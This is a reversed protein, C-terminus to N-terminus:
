HHNRSFRADSLMKEFQMAASKPSHHQEVWVRGNRGLDRCLDENNKLLMISEALKIPDEPSTCLGAEARQILKNTESEEEVSALIPRGSAMISYTKSPLSATGIGQRLIVLSLDASALVEPLTERPQFPIFKVNELKMKKSQEQLSDRGAGDGVFVFTIDNQKALIEAATLVHELGQSLGINGAYLVIFKDNLQHSQSFHNDKSMPYILDTDVWDYVLNMKTDPIGLNRIGTRFSDSLIRVVDAHNLCYRELGGVAKIILKHRFIGLTIGVDPYVDHISFVAPKKKLVVFYAFPLWVSLAPNVAIVADYKLNRGAFTAGFQYTLFQILRQPLHSRQLSPLWIRIVEVGNEISRWVMKGRYKPSTQGTPYHPIMTLVTVQNGRETLAQCLMTFLPASPGLDPEYLTGIVLIHM